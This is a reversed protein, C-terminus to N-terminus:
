FAQKFPHSYYGVFTNLNNGINKEGSNKSSHLNNVFCM